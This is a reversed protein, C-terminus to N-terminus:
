QGSPRFTITKHLVFTLVPGCLLVMLLGILYHWHLAQALASLAVTLALSGLSVMFFKGYLQLTPRRRFTLYSNAFFSASNALAFGGVNALVPSVQLTEVLAVVVASHLVTNVVGIAGFTLLDRYRRWYPELLKM